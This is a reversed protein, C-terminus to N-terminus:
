NEEHEDSSKTNGELSHSNHCHKCALSNEASKEKPPEANCTKPLPTHCELCLKKIEAMVKQGHAGHCSMCGPTKPCSDKKKECLLHRAHVSKKYSEFIDDHCNRCLHHVDENTWVSDPKISNDEVDVHEGSPGHCAECDVSAEWHKSAKAKMEVIINMHCFFCPNNYDQVPAQPIFFFTFLCLILINKM